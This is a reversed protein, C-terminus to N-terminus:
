KADCCSVGHTGFKYHTWEQKSAARRDVFTSHQNRVAYSNEHVKAAPLEVTLLHATSTGYQMLIKM